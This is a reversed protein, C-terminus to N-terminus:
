AGGFAHDRSEIFKGISNLTACHFLLNALVVTSLRQLCVNASLSNGFCAKNIGVLVQNKYVLPPSHWCHQYGDSYATKQVPM